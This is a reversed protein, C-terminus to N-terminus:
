WEVSVSTGPRTPIPHVAYNVLRHFVCRFKLQRFNRLIMKSPVISFNLPANWPYWKFCTGAFFFWTILSCHYNLELSAINKIKESPKLFGLILLGARISRAIEMPNGSKIFGAHVTLLRLLKWWQRFSHRMIKSCSYTILFELQM